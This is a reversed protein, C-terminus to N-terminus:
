AVEMRVGSLRVWEEREAQPEMVFWRRYHRAVEEAQSALIGSLVIGGGPRVREAFLPALEALPGALINAVLLDACMAPLDKPLVVNVIESVGNKEANLMTAQLAQPDHDVAWVRRAGLRAAAVALIGSGCGYDIVEGAALDHRDLWELCLATTPHTGTGFALGPDLMVNVAAPDPPTRWSPCIWLREGFRMPQFNDMWAREWDKDELPSVRCGALGAQGLAGRLHDLVAEVDVDAEFLGVVQTQTWLPTAGPPPEYLPQDSGDQFTVAGAGAESLLDSLQPANGPTADLKIQLWPM